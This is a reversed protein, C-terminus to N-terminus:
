RKARQAPISVMSPKSPDPVYSLKMDYDTGPKFEMTVNGDGSVFKNKSVARLRMPKENDITADIYEPKGRVELQWGNQMDYNGTIEKVEDPMLRVAKAPPTVTVTSIPATDPRPYPQTQAGASAALVLLSAPILLSLPRM